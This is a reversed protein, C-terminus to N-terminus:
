VTQQSLVIAAAKFADDVQVYVDKRKADGLLCTVLAADDALELMFIEAAEFLVEYGEEGFMLVVFLKQSIHVGGFLLFYLSALDIMRQRNPSPTIPLRGGETLSDDVELVVFIDVHQAQHASGLDNRHKLWGGVCLRQHRGM